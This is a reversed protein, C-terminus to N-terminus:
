DEPAIVVRRNPEDGESYTTIGEFDQLAIHVQRREAPGMPELTFKRGNRAVREASRKANNILNRNRRARYGDVDLYVRTYEGPERNIALTTLYQLANLTEGKRGIANGLDEGTVDIHLTGEEDFVSAMRGHIGLSNLVEAIFNVAKLERDKRLELLEAETLPERTEARDRSEDDRDEREDDAGAPEEAASEEVDASVRVKAARRGFGLIGSGGEDLVEIVADDVSVGLQALADEIAQDVTKASVEVSKNM